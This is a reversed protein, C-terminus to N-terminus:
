VHSVIDVGDIISVGLIGAFFGGNQDPFVEDFDKQSRLTFYELCRSALHSFSFFSNACRQALGAQLVGSRGDGDYLLGSVNIITGCYQVGKTATASRFTHAGKMLRDVVVIGVVKDCSRSPIM